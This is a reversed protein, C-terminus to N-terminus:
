NEDEEEAENQGKIIKEELMKNYIKMGLKEGFEKGLEMSDALINPLSQVMKKGTSSEYFTIIDKIENHSYYKDYVPIYLEVFEEVNIEALMRELFGEPLGKYQPSTKIMTSYQSIMIKVTQVTGTLVLLKKIDKSKTSDIQAFSTTAILLLLLLCTIPKM